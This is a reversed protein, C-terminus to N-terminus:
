NEEKIARKTPRAVLASNIQGSVLVDLDQSVKALRIVPVSDLAAQIKHVLNGSIGSSAQAVIGLCDRPTQRTITAEFDVLEEIAFLAEDLDAMCLFGAHGIPLVGSARQRIHELTLLPTGCPCNGPIFRSIDGTRYRILPMGQRTLTTFVVEGAGGEPVPKGTAPDIVEFIMDAERLHYGRRAQCDVGGGLGMETMGYHNYVRCGWAQEIARAIVGPVHDTSLLVSRVKLGASRRALTLVQAPIGVVGDVGETHMLTLTANVDHIVGHKIPHAGLRSLANALLDGVGGARECPLLILVKDGAKTFTSMGVRFFDLTLEQDEKTFYLRKALGTTGSTELTVVRQIDDQSVCVMQLGYERIDQATTFPFQCLEDLSSIATPSFKLRDQYFRSKRRALEVTERLQETQYALLDARGLGQPRGIKGAIWPDLPTLSPEM